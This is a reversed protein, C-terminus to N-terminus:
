LGKSLLLEPDGPVLPFRRALREYTTRSMLTHLRKGGESRALPCLRDFLLAPSGEPSLWGYGWVRRRERQRLALRAPRRGVSLRYRRPRFESQGTLRCWRSTLWWTHRSSIYRGFVQVLGSVPEYPEDDCVTVRVSQVKTPLPCKVWLLDDAPALGLRRYFPVAKPEPTVHFFQANARRSLRFAREMLAQGVGHRRFEEHVCIVNLSAVRGFPAENAVFFEVEGVVRGKLEAVLALHGDLLFNNLHAACTPVELWPNGDFVDTRHVDVIAPVDDLTAMRVKLGKPPM